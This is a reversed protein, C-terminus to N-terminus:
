ACRPGHCEDGCGSGGPVRLWSVIAIMEASKEPLPRGNMSRVMCGNIRDEITENGGVRPSIRPYHSMAAALSLTGLSRAQGSIARPAPLAAKRSDCGPSPPM